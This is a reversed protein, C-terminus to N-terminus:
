TREIPAFRIRARLAFACVAIGSALLLLAILGRAFPDFEVALVFMGGGIQTIGPGLLLLRAATPSGIRRRLLSAFMVILGFLMVTPGAFVVGFAVVSLINM